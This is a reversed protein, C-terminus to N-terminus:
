VHARGIKLNNDVADTQAQTQNEYYATRQDVLEQPTKCLLLGGIEINDKFRSEPDVLLKFKPQEEARVPEWGERLKGSLNRPDASNLMSVRIWRYAFGPQKDPEPLLEPAQWQKPREEQQRTELDRPIRNEAM